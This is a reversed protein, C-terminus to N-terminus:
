PVRREALWREIEVLADHRGLDVLTDKAQEVLADARSRRAPDPWLARALTFRAHALQEPAGQAAEWHTFAREAHERAVDFDQQELEVDALGSLLYAVTTGDHESEGQEIELARRYHHRAQEYRGQESYLDGLSALVRVLRGHHPGFAQEWILLARRYRLEAQEHRQRVHLVYGLNYVGEAVEPHDAGLARELVPLAQRFRREAREHKGQGHLVAGLHGLITAVRVHDTGLSREATALARGFLQEAEELRGEVLFTAGLNDVSMSVDPHDMGLTNEYIKLARRHMVESAEYLGQDHLANGLNNAATAVQPHDPGLAHERLQLARRFRQEAEEPKGQARLVVGLHNLGDAVLTEDGIRRALPLFTRGWMLGEAHRAQRYGVAYVLEIAADLVVQDHGHEFALAHAQTLDQEAEAYRGAGLHARGRQLRAEALLPVYGLAEARQVVPEARELARAYQGARHQVELEALQERLGEVQQAVQPDEPPPVRQQQQRLVITDDCRALGPLDTVVFVAKDVAQTDARLLLKVAAHLAEKRKRLCDMRLEMVEESQEETVRTAECVETHKDVWARAYTDLGQRVRESTNAAYPLQTEMIADSVQRRRAEDWIGQLQDSAGTCPRDGGGQYVMGAWLLGTGVVMAAGLGLLRRRRRAPDYALAVLLADMSPWRDAPDPSLGRRLAEIIRRPVESGSLPWTPPGQLKVVALVGSFPSKGTLMEWLAVCLSYQDAAATLVCGRHQEPAMYRPTGMITGTVTLSESTTRLGDSASRPGVVDTSGDIKALGFDTVKVADAAVLVNSPKFDRHLLGAAHAAQLGRGAEIFRDVVARWDRPQENAWARLTPGPVYEMVLVYGGDGVQVVDHVAVVNPHSLRAMAQAEAVLRQEAREDRVEPRLEKLAVERQLKPDYARVVRGMGGSGIEEVVLYRGLSQGLSCGGRPWAGASPEPGRSVPELELAQQMRTPSRSM